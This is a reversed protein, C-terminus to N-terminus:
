DPVEPGDGNNPLLWWGLERLVEADTEPQSEEPTCADMEKVTRPERRPLNDGRFQNAM